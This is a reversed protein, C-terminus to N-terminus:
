WSNSRFIPLYQLIYSPFYWRTGAYPCSSAYLPLSCDNNGQCALPSSGGSYSGAAYCSDNCSDGECDRCGLAAVDDEEDDANVDAGNCWADYESYDPESEEVAPAPSSYDMYYRAADLNAQLATDIKLASASWGFVAATVIIETRM